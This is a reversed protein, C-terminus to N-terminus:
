TKEAESIGVFRRVLVNRECGNENGADYSSELDLTIPVALVCIDGVLNLITAAIYLKQIKVGCHGKM